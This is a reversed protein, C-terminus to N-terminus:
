PGTQLWFYYMSCIRRNAFVSRCVGFTFLARNALVISWHERFWGGSAGTWGLRMGQHLIKRVWNKNKFFFWRGIVGYRLVAFKGSRSAVM